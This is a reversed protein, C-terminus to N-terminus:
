SQIHHRIIFDFGVIIELLKYIKCTLNKVKTFINTKGSLIQTDLSFHLNYKWDIWFVFRVYILYAM